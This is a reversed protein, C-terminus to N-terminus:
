LDATRIKRPMKVEINQSKGNRTLQFRITPNDKKERLLKSIEDVGKIEKDDVHTIIDDEKIGAKAANSEEDVEVVKVGKGDDTDQVSLGLKPSGGSWNRNQGGFPAMGKFEELKPMISKFDMGDMNMNFNQGAGEGGFVSVGKWKTLEASAKMEKKDRLYTVTVKDGPKHAKIIESLDDPGEVKKDDIKTIIDGEKLGMKEAASENTVDQIEAGQEGKETTVGLMARNADESFLRFNEGGGNDYTRVGARPTRMFSLSEMDKLKNLRVSIDGDKDRYEDLPKGNVLVKDGTIEIVVKDNKDGKSTIIIQRVDKKGKDGKEEKEDKQALLSVPVLLALMISFAAIKNWMQQM